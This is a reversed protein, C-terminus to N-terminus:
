SAKARESLSVILTAIPIGAIWGWILVLSSTSSDNGTFVWWILLMTAALGAGVIAMVPRGLSVTAFILAAPGLCLVAALIGRGPTPIGLVSGVREWNSNRWSFSSGAVSGVAAAGLYFLARGLYALQPGPFVARPAVGDHGALTM